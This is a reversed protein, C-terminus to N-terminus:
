DQQVSLTPSNDSSLLTDRGRRLQGPTTGRRRRLLTGLTTADQYGVAHAVSAISLDTTRLLATARELRVQQIYRVPTMGLVTSTLRQLTRQSVGLQRALQAVELPGAVGHRVARDFASLVPDTVPLLAPRMVDSQRPREGVALYDAAAASLAPSAQRVLSLALDLHAVAAGATTVGGSVVLTQSEDLRVRPYRARFTPALWWSTTADRGDLIGAEALFFTASCAGATNVGGLHAARLMAVVSGAQVATLIQEGTLLGLSPAILVDPPDDLAATMPQADVTLGYATRIEDTPAHLTVGFRPVHRDIQEALLNAVAFVDRMLALGSDGVGDVILLGIRM